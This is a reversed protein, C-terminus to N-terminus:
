IEFINSDLQNEDCENTYIFQLLSKVTKVDFDSIIIENSSSEFMGSLFVNRFCESKMCLILKHVRIREECVILWADRLKHDNYVWM